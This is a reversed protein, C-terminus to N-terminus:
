KHAAATEPLFYFVIGLVMYVAMLLAGELWNSEGDSAIQYTIFVAMVVALVEATTFVLDMPAPAIFYSALVLVPAVFLAVQVSSGIAISLSLDMKNQLAMLIATSHEAANGVIAVVIVGVFVNTMGLDHAAHEVSGVLIESVWAVLATAGVLLGLAKTLPWPEEGGHGHGGAGEFFEKHTHLTFLLGLGYAFLLVIAIELSLDKEAAAGAPGSLHHFAAPAILGVAALTLLTSQMRAGAANFSQQKFKLGGAFVSAGLVLLINGIISGTLSAKVVDIMGNNLAVLAIILEAANGFTANLLGGVGEGTHAAIHETAKGMWGALPLIALCALFFVVTPSAAMREGIVAAPLFVLFWNLSPKLLSKM